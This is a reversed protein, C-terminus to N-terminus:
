LRGSLGALRAVEVDADDRDVGREREELLAGERRGQRRGYAGFHIDHPEIAVRESTARSPMQRSSASGPTNAAKRASAIDRHISKSSVM